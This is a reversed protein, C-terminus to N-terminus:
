RHQTITGHPRHEIRAPHTKVLTKVEYVQNLGFQDLFDVTGIDLSASLDDLGISESGITILQSCM